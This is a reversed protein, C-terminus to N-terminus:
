PLDREVREHPFPDNLTPRHHLGFRQRGHGLREPLHGIGESGSDGDRMEFSGATFFRRGGCPLSAEFDDALARNALPM